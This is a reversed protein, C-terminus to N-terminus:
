PSAAETNWCHRDLYQYLEDKKKGLSELETLVDELPERLEELAEVREDQLEALEDADAELTEIEGRKSELDVRLGALEQENTAIQSELDAVNNEVDLADLADLLVELEGQIGEVIALISDYEQQADAISGLVDNYRDLLAQYDGPNTVPDTLALENAVLAEENTWVELETAAAQLADLADLLEQEKQAIQGELTAANARVNAIEERLTAIETEVATIQEELGAAESELDQIQTDLGQYDSEGQAIGEEQGRYESLPGSNDRNLELIRENVSEWDEEIQDCSEETKWPM